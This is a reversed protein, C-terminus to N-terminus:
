KPPWTIVLDFSVLDVQESGESNSTAKILSAEWSGNGVEIRLTIPIAPFLHPDNLPKTACVLEFWASGSKKALVKTGLFAVQEEELGSVNEDSASSANMATVANWNAVEDPVERVKGIDVITDEASDLEVLESKLSDNAKTTSLLIADVHRSTLSDILLNGLFRNKRPQDEWFPEGRYCSLGLQLRVMGLTPNTVKMLFAHQQKDDM